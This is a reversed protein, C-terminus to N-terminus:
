AISQQNGTVLAKIDKKWGNMDGRYWWGPPGRGPICTLSYTIIPSGLNVM